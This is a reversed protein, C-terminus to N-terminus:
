APKHLDSRAEDALEHIKEETERLKAEAQATREAARRERGTPTRNTRDKRKLRDFLGM